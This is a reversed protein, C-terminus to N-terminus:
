GGAAQVIGAYEHVFWGSGAGRALNVAAEAVRSAEIARFRALPGM